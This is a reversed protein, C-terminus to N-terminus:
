IKDGLLVIAKLYVEDNSFKIAKGADSLTKGTTIVDDLIIYRGTKVPEKVKIGHDFSARKFGTMTHSPKTPMSKKLIDYLPIGYDASIRKSLEYSVNFGRKLQRIFDSPIYIIGDINEFSCEKKIIDYFFDLYGYIKEFKLKSMYKKLIGMYRFIVELEDIFDISNITNAREFESYCKECIPYEGENCILCAKKM